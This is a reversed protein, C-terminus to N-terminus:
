APHTRAIGEDLYRQEGTCVWIWYRLRVPYEGLAAPFVLLADKQRGLGCLAAGRVLLAKEIDPALAWAAEYEGCRLYARAGGLSLETKFKGTAERVAEDLPLRELSGQLHEFKELAVPEVRLEDLLESFGKEIQTLGELVDEFLSDLELTGDSEM